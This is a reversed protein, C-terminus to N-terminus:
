TPPEALPLIPAEEVVLGRFPGLGQLRLVPPHPLGRLRAAVAPALLIAVGDHEIRVADPPASPSADAGIEAILALAGGGCCGNRRSLLLTAAGGRQAIWAAAAPDVRIV